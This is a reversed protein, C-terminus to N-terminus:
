VNKAEEVNGSELAAPAKSGYKEVYKEKKRLYKDQLMKYQWKGMYVFGDGQGSEAARANMAKPDDAIKAREFADALSALEAGRKERLALKKAEAKADRAAAYAAYKPNKARLRADTIKWLKAFNAKIMPLCLAIVVIVATILKVYETGLGAYIVVVYIIRYIVSGVVVGFLALAFNRRSPVLTEGIIVSALGIVIAGQGMTLTASGDRQAVLAGSLAILANSLMLGVIKMASTNIGQARSMRENMGTARISSGMETGFFWYILAILIALIMLGSVLQAYNASMGLWRYFLDFGLFGISAKAGSILLNVSTLATLTLIGALIPPIRFLTNLAGTVLGAAAGALVAIVCAVIPDYGSQTVLVASIMGGMAFSGECTLDAFDLLRFSIYVGIALVAWFLGQNLGTLLTAGM